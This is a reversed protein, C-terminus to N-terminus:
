PFGKLKEGRDFIGLEKAMELVAFCNIHTKYKLLWFRPLFSEGVNTCLLQAGRTERYALVDVTVVGLAQMRRGAVDRGQIHKFVTLGSYVGPAALLKGLGAFM